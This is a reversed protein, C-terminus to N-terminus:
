FLLRVAAFGFSVVLVVAIVLGILNAQMKARVDESFEHKGLGGCAECAPSNLLASLPKVKGACRPCRVGFPYM